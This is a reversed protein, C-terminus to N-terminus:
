VLSRDREEGSQRCGTFYNGGWKEKLIVELKVRIDFLM